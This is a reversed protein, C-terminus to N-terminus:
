INLNKGMKWTNVKIIKCSIDASCMHMGLVMKLWLKCVFYGFDDSDGYALDFLAFYTIVFFIHQSLTHFLIKEFADNNRQM